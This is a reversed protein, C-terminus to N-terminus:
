QAIVMQSVSSLNLITSRWFPISLPLAFTVQVRVVNGPTNCIGVTCDSWTTPVSASANLWSTSVTMYLASNLGPVNISKVYTQIEVASANCNTLKSTNICSTSGRVIAYRSGERAVECISHYSYLALSMQFIGFILALVISSSLATEILSSGEEGRVIAISWRRRLNGLVNVTSM